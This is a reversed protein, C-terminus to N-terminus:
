AEGCFGAIPFAKAQWTDLTSRAMSHHGRIVNNVFERGNDSQLIAPAGQITFIHVLVKAVSGANKDPLPQVWSFKIGHDQYCMIWKYGEDPHSQMDILDIQARRNFGKTIIPKIGERKSIRASAEICRPCLKLYKEIVTRSINGYKSKLKKEMKVVKGHLLGKHVEHIREFLEEKTVVRLVNELDIVGDKIFKPEDKKFFLQNSPGIQIFGYRKKWKYRLKHTSETDSLVCIIEQKKEEDPVIDNNQDKCFENYWEQFLKKHESDNRKDM